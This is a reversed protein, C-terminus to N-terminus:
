ETAKSQTTKQTLKTHKCIQLRKAYLTRAQMSKRKEKQLTAQM